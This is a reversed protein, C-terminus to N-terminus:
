PHRASLHCPREWFTVTLSSMGQMAQNPHGSVGVSGQSWSVHGVEGASLAALGGARGRPWGGPSVCPAVGSPYPHAGGPRAAERM